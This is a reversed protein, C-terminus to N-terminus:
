SCLGGGKKATNLKIKPKFTDKPFLDLVKLSPKSPDFKGHPLKVNNFVENWYKIGGDLIYLNSIGSVKLWKWATESQNKDNSVIVVVGQPPIQMLSNLIDAKDLENLKLNIASEFHFQNYEAKPRLDLTILKVNADNWTKVYELPHISIENNDIIKQYQGGIRDWKEQATPQGNIWTVGAVVIVLIFTIFYKRNRPIWKMKGTNFYEEVKEAFYFMLLALITVGFVTAGISWGLWDSLLLRESYSSNWFDEFYYVSEGFFGAGVITGILFVIGDIKFSAASVVSTGPCYGGTIFGLGMIMGGIIGPILYTQNVFIKSYDLVNISSTFFLLLCATLIATFMTKLVTMDKFYFQAALKRSDGFGAMELVSGFGMGIFLFTIYGIFKGYDGSIDLPLM